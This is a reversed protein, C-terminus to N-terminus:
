DPEKRKAPEEVPAADLHMAIQFPVKCKPCPVKKGLLSYDKIKLGVGCNPCSIPLPATM